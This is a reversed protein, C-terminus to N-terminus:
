PADFLSVRYMRPWLYGFLAGLGMGIVIYQALIFGAISRVWGVFGKREKTPEPVKERETGLPAEARTAPAEDAPNM